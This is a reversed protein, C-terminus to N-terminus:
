APASYANVPRRCSNRAMHTASSESGMLLYFDIRETNWLCMSTLAAIATFGFREGICCLSCPTAVQSLPILAARM